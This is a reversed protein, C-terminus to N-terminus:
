PHSEPAAPHLLPEIGMEAALADLSGQLRPEILLGQRLNQRRNWAEPEGPVLVAEVGRSPRSSKVKSVYRDVNAFFRESEIFAEVSMALALHGVGWSDLVTAGEELFARSVQFAFFADSLGASLVENVFAVAYGKHGAMALVTGAMAAHADNAPEGQADIAWGPPIAEDRQAALRIRGRAVASCAMDLIIPDSSTPIGWSFPSNSIVADRGGYPAMIAPTNSVFHGIMGASVARMVHVALMGSHNSHRVAVVGVGHVAALEVARDMARQGVVVGLGNDGDLVATAGFGRLQELRPRPNIQGTLFGRAYAPLRYIGHSGVGQLDAEVIGGVLLEIDEEAVGSRVAVRRAFSRVVEVPVRPARDSIPNM